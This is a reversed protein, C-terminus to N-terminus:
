NRSSFTNGDCLFLMSTLLREHYFMFLSLFSLRQFMGVLSIYGTKEIYKIKNIM